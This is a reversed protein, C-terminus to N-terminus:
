KSRFKSMKAAEPPFTMFNMIFHVKSHRVTKVNLRCLSVMKAPLLTKLKGTIVLTLVTGNEGFGAVNVRCPSLRNERDAVKAHDNGDCRAESFCPYMM